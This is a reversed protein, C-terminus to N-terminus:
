CLYCLTFILYTYSVLPMMYCTSKIRHDMSVEDSRCDDAGAIFDRRHLCGGDTVQKGGNPQFVMQEM